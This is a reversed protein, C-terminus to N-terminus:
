GLVGSLCGQRPNPHVFKLLVVVIFSARTRVGDVGRRDICHVIAFVMGLVSMHFYAEQMAVCLGQPIGANGISDALTLCWYHKVM